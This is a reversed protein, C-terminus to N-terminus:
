AAKKLDINFLNKVQGELTPKTERCSSKERLLKLIINHGSEGSSISSILGSLKLNCERQTRTDIHNTSKLNSVEEIWKEIRNYTDIFDRIECLRYPAVLNDHSTIFNEIFLAEECVLNKSFYQKLSFLFPKIGDVYVSFDKFNDILEKEGQIISDLVKVFNQQPNALKYKEWAEYFPTSMSIARCLKGVYLDNLEIYVAHKFQYFSSELEQWREFHPLYLSKHYSLGSVTLEHQSAKTLFKWFGGYINEQLEKTEIFYEYTLNRKKLSWKFERFSERDISQDQNLYRGTFVNEKERGGVFCELTNLVEQSGKDEHASLIFVDDVVLSVKQNVHNIDKLRYLHISDLNSMVIHTEEDGALQAKIRSLDESKITLMEKCISDLDLRCEGSDNLQKKIRFMLEPNKDTEWPIYIHFEEKFNHLNFHSFSFDQSHKHYVFPHLWKSGM